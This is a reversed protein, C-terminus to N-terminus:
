SYHELISLIDRSLTEPDQPPTFVAQLEGGPNFLYLAASHDMLYSDAPADQQRFRTYVVGLGATLKAMEGATGGVGVIRDSFHGVYRSLLEPTDRETDVSIFTYGLDGGHGAQALRQEVAKMEYLTTPCVDPCHTYGFFALTWRDRLSKRDFPRGQHDVLSFDPLPRPTPLFTGHALQPIAAPRTLHTAVWFGLALALVAVVLFGIVNRSRM